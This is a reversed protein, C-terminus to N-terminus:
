TRCYSRRHNRCRLVPLAVAELTGADVDVPDLGIEDGVLRDVRVERRREPDRFVAVPFCRSGFVLLPDLSEAAPRCGDGFVGQPRQLLRASEREAGGAHDHVDADVAPVTAGLVLERVQEAAPATAALSVAPRSETGVRIASLMQSM